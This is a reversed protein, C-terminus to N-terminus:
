ITLTTIPGAGATVSAYPLRWDDFGQYDLNAAWTNADDWTMAGTASNVCNNLAVCLNADAVWTINLVDDYILGSGRDILTAQAKGAMLLGAMLGLALITKKM